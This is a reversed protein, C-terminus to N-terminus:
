KILLNMKFIPLAMAFVIFAVVGAIMLILLPGLLSTFTQVAAATQREYSDALNSLGKELRGSEEGVSIISLANEPFYGSRSLAATLSTGNKVEAAVKMIETKLVENDLVEAVTELASVIVVGSQILTALTRAFRGLSVERLFNGLIPLKLKFGDWWLRGTPNQLFRRLFFITALILIVLLWWFKAFFESIGMLIVTPLPLAANLDEFMVILHPIVFTLLIFITLGGVGMVLAPYYLSAQVKSRNQQDENLFEALRSLTPSLKGSLEGARVMNVYLKPFVEKHKALAASFNAGDEVRLALDAVVTKFRPEKLQNLITRLAKLLPVGSDILVYMQGTFITLQSLRIKRRFDLFQTQPKVSFSQSKAAVVEATVDLPYFGLQTIKQIASELHEADIVGDVIQGPGQKAKYFFKPM